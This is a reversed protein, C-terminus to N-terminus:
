RSRVRILRIAEASIENELIDAVDKNTLKEDVAFIHRILNDRQEKIKGYREERQKKTQNETNLRKSNRLAYYQKKEDPTLDDFHIECLFNPCKYPNRHKRFLKVNEAVNWKDKTFPNDEQEFIWARGRGRPIYAYFRIRSALGSDLEWFNPIAGGILLHRDRCKNMIEIGEKQGEDWWNRNFFMSIIEDALIATYEPKRGTRKAGTGDIWKLLEDRSWTMNKQLDWDLGTIKSYTKQLKILFVSKGEGTFGACGVTVDRDSKALDLIVKAFDDM